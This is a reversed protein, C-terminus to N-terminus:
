PKEQETPPTPRVPLTARQFEQLKGIVFTFASVKGDCYVARDSVVEHARHEEAERAIGDRIVECQTLLRQIAHELEQPHPVSAGGVELADTEPLREADTLPVPTALATLREASGSM